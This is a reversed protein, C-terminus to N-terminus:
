DVKQILLTPGIWLEDPSTNGVRLATNTFSITGILGAAPLQPHVLDVGDVERDHRGTVDATVTTGGITVTKQAWPDAAWVTQYFDTVPAGDAALVTVDGAATSSSPRGYDSTTVEANTDQGTTWLVTLSWGAMPSIGAPGTRAALGSVSVTHRGPGAMAALLTDDATGAVRAFMRGTTVPDGGTSDTPIDAPRVGHALFASHDDVTVRVTDLTTVPAAAPATAAWTLEALLVTAGPPVTVDASSPAVTSLGGPCDGRTLFDPVACRLTAQAVSAGGFPGTM